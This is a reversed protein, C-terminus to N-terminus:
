YGCIRFMRESAFAIFLLSEPFFHSQKIDGFEKIVNVLIIHCLETFYFYIQKISVEVSMLQISKEVFM